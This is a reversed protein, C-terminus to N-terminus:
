CSVLSGWPNSSPHLINHDVSDFAKKFDLYVVDSCMKDELDSHIKNLMILLQQQSSRGKMFGFQCSAIYGAVHNAVHNFVLRELVKSTSCLLSIPRNNKVLSRDGAKFVPTILHTCWETPLQSSSLSVDFLHHIPSCLADACQKLVMPGILDVGKAKKCDLSHLVAYVDQITIDIASLVENPHPSSLSVM